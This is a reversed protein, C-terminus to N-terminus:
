CLPSSFDAREPQGAVDTGERGGEIKRPVKLVDFPQHSPIFPLPNNNKRITPWIGPVIGKPDGSCVAM